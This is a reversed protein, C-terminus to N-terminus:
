AILIAASAIVLGLMATAGIVLSPDRLYRPGVDTLVLGALFGVILGGVHGGISIGPVAFTFALNLLIMAGLGTDMVNIGRSRFVAVAVGMLGFVAGSAGVTFANPDLLMVGLSGGLMAVMYALVFRVRGLVPELLQGLRYLVFMNFGIHILNAHLFGSSILRWWEGNAVGILDGTARNFASAILGGDVIFQDRTELGSGVGAAFVAANLAILVQTVVPRPNLLQQPRVIKQAGQKTCEPCHFGVSAQRMCDPCIPRDCRQCVVGARRDSHRYCTQIQTSV